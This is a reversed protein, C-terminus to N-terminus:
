SSWYIQPNLYDVWGQKAWELANCYLYDYSEMASIGAPVTRRALNLGQEKLKEMLQEDTMPANKDENDVCQQIIAKIQRQTTQEEATMDSEDEVTQRKRNFNPQRYSDGFFHKLPFIGFATEVYKSSSM